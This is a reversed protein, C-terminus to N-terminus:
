SFVQKHKIRVVFACILRCMQATQDAGKNKAAKTHTKGSQVSGFVSKRKVHSLHFSLFNCEKTLKPIISQFYHVYLLFQDWKKERDTIISFLDGKALFRLSLEHLPFDFNAFYKPYSDFFHKESFILSNLKYSRRGPGDIYLGFKLVLNKSNLGPFYM